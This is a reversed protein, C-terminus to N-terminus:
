WRARYGRVDVHIFPGRAATKRYKGLGGVFCRYQSDCDVDDVIEYLVGADRIDILGDRNLDDMVGDKPDRDVFIDAASGWMHRSYKVNGIAGNYCPTRYGSMIHLTDCRYGKENIRELILELKLLLQEKLVVYKPYGGDQKCLFQKLRFHPAVLAEENAETVEIFGRPPGRIPLKKHSSLDPYSGIRYGNLCGNELDEYPIMVFVNLTICDGSETQSIEVPYLGVEEPARWIWKNDRRSTVDGGSARLVYRKEGDSDIAELKITEGPLVFVGIVGHHSIYNEFRIAFRAKQHFFGVPSGAVVQSILALIVSVQITVGSARAFAMMFM